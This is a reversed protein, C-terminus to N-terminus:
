APSAVKPAFLLPGLTEQGYKTAAEVLKKINPESPPPLARKQAPEGAEIVFQDFGSPVCIALTRVLDDGDVMYGHPIDKPLWVFAGTSAHWEQDGCIGRIAGSLVYFAEDENHHVHLPTAFGPPHTFEVTALVNGTKNVAGKIM